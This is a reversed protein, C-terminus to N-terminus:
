LVHMIQRRRASFAVILLVSTIVMLYHAMGLERSGKIAGVFDFFPVNNLIGYVIITFIVEFFKSSGTLIGSAIAFAPIFLAGVVIAYFGYFNGTIMVKILVPFAMTIMLLVAASMTASLQRRLPFAVSFIYENCRHTVERSGLNSLILVQFFWLLPLAIKYAFDLTTFILVIFLAFAIVMWLITNGRLMLRLEALILRFYSFKAVAPPLDCYRIKSSINSEDPIVPNKKSFWSNRQKRERLKSNDFRNFGLSALLVLGFAASMWYIRMLLISSTWNFGEWIFVKKDIQSGSIHIGAGFGGSWDPHLASISIKLENMVTSFGLIDIQHSLQGAPLLFMWLFFYIINIFGRSLGSFSDFILAIAAIIFMSPIMFIIIPLLLNELEFHSTEGRFLFMVVTMIAILFTILLLVTFNSILKGTLYQLRTIRTTAIIQGVGTDIDRKVSYNVVYFCVLAFFPVCITVMGGIWASNYFGIYNGLSIIKYGADIPPVFSYIMFVCIGLTILFYYSRVRENFDAKAIHYISSITYGPKMSGEM